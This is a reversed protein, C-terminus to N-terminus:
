KDDIFIHILLFYVIMHLGTHIKISLNWHKLFEFLLLFSGLCLRGRFINQIRHRSYYHLIGLILRLSPFWAHNNVIQIIIESLRELLPLVLFDQLLWKRSRSLHTRIRGPAASLHSLRSVYHICSNTAVNLPVGVADSYDIVKRVVIRLHNFQIIWFWAEPSTSALITVHLAIHTFSLARDATDFDDSCVPIDVCPWIGTAHIIKDSAWTFCRFTIESFISLIIVRLNDVIHARKLIVIIHWVLICEDKIGKLTESLLVCIYDSLLLHAGFM